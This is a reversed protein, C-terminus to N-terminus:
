SSLKLLRGHSMREMEIAKLTECVGKEKWRTYIKNPAKHRIHHKGDPNLSPWYEGDDGETQIPDHNVMCTCEAIM